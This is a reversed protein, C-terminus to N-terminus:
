LKWIRYKFKGTKRIAFDGIDEKRQIRSITSMIDTKEKKVEFSQTPELKRLTATFETPASGGRFQKRKIPPIPIGNEINYKM